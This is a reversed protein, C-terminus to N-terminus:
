RFIYIRITAMVNYRVCETIDMIAVIGAELQTIIFSKYRVGLEHYSGGVRLLGLVTNYFICVVESESIAWIYSFRRIYTKESCVVCKENWLQHLDSWNQYM